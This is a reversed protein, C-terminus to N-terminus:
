NSDLIFSMNLYTCKEKRGNEEEEKKSRVNVREGEEEEIKACFEFAICTEILM